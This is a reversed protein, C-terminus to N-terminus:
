RNVVIPITTINDEWSISVLYFGSRISAPLTVKSTVHDNKMVLRGISDYIRLGSNECNLTEPFRINLINDDIPNPYIFIENQENLFNEKEKLGNIVLGFDQEGDVLTGKHRVIVTYKGAPLSQFSIKEINDRVNDGRLAPSTFNDLTLAPNLKWPYYTTGNEHILRLDLDNVLKIEPDDEIGSSVEGPPDSWAIAMEFPSNEELEIKMFFEVGDMLTLEDIVSQNGNQSIVNAAKGADLLGWGAEFDPRVVM